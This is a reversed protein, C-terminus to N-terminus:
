RASGKTFQVLYKLCVQRPDEVIYETYAPYNYFFKNNLIVKEELMDLPISYGTFHFFCATSIESCLVYTYEDIFPFHNMLKCIINQFRCIINYIKRFNCQSQWFKQHSKFIQDEILQTLIQTKMWHTNTGHCPFLNSLHFDCYNVM